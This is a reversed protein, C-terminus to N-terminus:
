RPASAFAILAERQSEAVDPPGTLKYFLTKGNKPVILAMVRTPVGTEKDRGNISIFQGRGNEALGVSVVEGEIMEPQMPPLGVQDRWRNVNAALGGGTGGLESYTLEATDGLENQFLYREQQMRGPRALFWGDELGPAVILAPDQPVVYNRIGERGCGVLLLSTALLSLCWKCWFRSHSLDFM